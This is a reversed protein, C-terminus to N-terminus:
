AADTAAHCQRRVVNLPIMSWDSFGRTVVTSLHMAGDTYEVGAKLWQEEDVRLMLGSQDYLTEYSGSITVEATFDGSVDGYLFHGDDRTFGYFTKRWFDTKSKTVAHLSGDVISSQSPENFWTMQSFVPVTGEEAVSSSVVALSHAGDRMPSRSVRCCESLVANRYPEALGAIAATVVCKAVDGDTFPLALGGLPLALQAHPTTSCRAGVRTWRITPPRGASSSLTSGRWPAGQTAARIHSAVREGVGTNRVALTVEAGARALSRATEVGIGSAGGTVVARRGSLDIGAVVEDATTTAGYATTVLTM